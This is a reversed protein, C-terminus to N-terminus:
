LSSFLQDMKKRMLLRSNLMLATSFTNLLDSCSVERTRSSWWFGQTKSKTKSSFLLAKSLSLRERELKVMPLSLAMTVKCVATLLQDQSPMSYRSSTLRSIALSILTSNRQTWEKKSCLCLGMKRSQSAIRTTLIKSREKTLHDWESLWRSKTIRITKLYTRPRQFKLTLITWTWLSLAQQLRATQSWRSSLSAPLRSPASARSKTTWQSKPLIASLVKIQTWLWNRTQNLPRLVKDRSYTKLLSFSTQNNILWLPTTPAIEQTPIKSRDAWNRLNWATWFNQIAITQPRQSHRPHPPSPELVKAQLFKSTSWQSQGLGKLSSTRKLQNIWLIM